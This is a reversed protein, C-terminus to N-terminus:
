KVESRSKKEIQDENLKIKLNKKRSQSIGMVTKKGFDLIDETTNYRKVKNLNIICNRSIKYFRPDNGLKKEIDALTMSTPYNTKRTVITATVEELEKEIYLIDNYLVQYIENRKQFEILKNSTIIEYARKLAKLLLGEVNYFKSIFALALMDAQLDYDKLNDHSTVIIIQSQWDNSERIERALDLGSKGPVEIDIIYIRNEGAKNLKKLEEKDYRKIETIEYAVKTNKFYNDIVSFYRDRFKEEDEYIIFNIM